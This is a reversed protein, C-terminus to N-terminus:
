LEAASAAFDCFRGLEDESVQLASAAQRLWDLESAHLEGDALAVGALEILVVRAEPTGALPKLESALDQVATVETPFSHLWMERMLADRLDQEREHVMQDAHILSLAARCFLQKQGESLAHLFMPPVM